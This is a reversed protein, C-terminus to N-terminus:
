PRTVPAWPGPLRLPGDLPRGRCREPLVGSRELPEADYWRFEAESSPHVGGRAFSRRARPISAGEPSVGGRELSERTRVLEGSRLMLHESAVRVGRTLPLDGGHRGV